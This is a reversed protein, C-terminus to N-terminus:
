LAYTSPRKNIAIGEKMLALNSPYKLIISFSSYIRAVGFDYSFVKMIVLFIQTNSHKWDNRQAFM